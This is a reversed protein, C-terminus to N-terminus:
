YRRKENIMRSQLKVPCILLLTSYGGDSGYLVVAVCTALGDTIYTKNTGSNNYIVEDMSVNIANKIFAICQTKDMLKSKKKRLILTM